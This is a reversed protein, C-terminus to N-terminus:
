IRGKAAGRNTKAAGGTGDLCRNAGQGRNPTCTAERRRGGDFAIRAAQETVVQIVEDFM